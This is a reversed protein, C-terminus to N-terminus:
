VECGGAQDDGLCRGLSLWHLRLGSSQGLDLGLGSGYGLKGRGRTGGAFAAATGAEVHPGLARACSGIWDCVWGRVAM